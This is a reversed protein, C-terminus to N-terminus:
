LLVTKFRINGVLRWYVSLTPIVLSTVLMEAIDRLTKSTRVLRKYAFNLLLIAVGALGTYALWWEQRWAAALVVIWLLNIFYYYWLPKQQIRQRYFAPYKKYLLADYMGKRQEAISLGFRGSRVPHVVIAEPTRIITISNELLRFHLDSDERWALEFREDFGGTLILAQKSIACNATIFEADELGKTNLAHDSVMNGVPVVTRGTMAILQGENYHSLLSILWNRDPLCDDDTFAVLPGRASLWGLNRAAAPGKKVATHLYRLNLPRKGAYVELASRTQPDPGDSVVIVEFFAKNLHQGALSKLCNLLLNTRNYTPIVVSIKIPM